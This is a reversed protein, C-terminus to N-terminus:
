QIVENIVGQSKIYYKDLIEIARECNIHNKLQGNRSLNSIIIACWKARYLDLYIPLYKIRSNTKHISIELNRLIFFIIEGEAVNEPQILLDCTLKMPDDWGSYEFDFFFLEDNRAKINHFGIDSPSIIREVTSSLEWDGSEFSYRIKLDGLNEIGQLINENLWNLIPSINNREMYTDILSYIREKILKHHGKLSFCAESANSLQSKYAKDKLAQLSKIFSLVKIWDKRQPKTLRSGEIWSMLCWNDKQNSIIIKPIKLDEVGKCLSLFRIESEIRNRGDLGRDPYVKLFYKHSDVFICWCSSNRGQNIRFSNSIAIKNKLLEEVIQIPISNKEQNM